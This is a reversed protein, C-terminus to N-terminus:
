PAIQALRFWKPGIPRLLNFGHPNCYRVDSDGDSGIGGHRARVPIAYAARDRGSASRGPWMWPNEGLWDGLDAALLRPDESVFVGGGFGSQVAGPCVKM